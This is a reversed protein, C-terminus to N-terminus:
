AILKLAEGALSMDAVESFPLMKQQNGVTINVRQMYDIREQSLVLDTAFVKNKNYFSWQYEAEKTQQAPDKSGGM